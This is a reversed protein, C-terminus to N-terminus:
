KDIDYKALMERSSKMTKWAKTHHFPSLALILQTYIINILATNLKPIFLVSFLILWFPNSIALGLYLLMGLIIFYPLICIQLFVFPYIIWGFINKGLLDLNNLYVQFVGKSRRMKQSFQESLKPPTCEYAVSAEDYVIRKGKRIIKFLLETDDAMSDLKIDQVLSTRFAMIPGNCISISHMASEGCRWINYFQRYLDESKAALGSSNTSLIKIVGNAGGVNPDSFNQVLERIAQPELFSDADTEVTIETTIKPFIFNLANIKGRASQNDIVESKFPVKSLNDLIIARTQDTSNDNVFLVNLKSSPYDIKAINDIKKSIIAEENYACVLLTVSPLYPSKIHTKGQKAKYWCLISYSIYIGITFLTIIIFFILLM